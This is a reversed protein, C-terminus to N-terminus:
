INFPSIYYTSFAQLLKHLFDCDYYKCSFLSVLTDIDVFTYQM